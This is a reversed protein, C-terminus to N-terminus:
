AHGPIRTLMQLDYLSVGLTLYFLEAPSRTNTLYIARGILKWNDQQYGRVVAVANGALECTRDGEQTGFPAIGVMGHKEEFFLVCDGPAPHAKIADLITQITQLARNGYHTAPYLTGKKKKDQKSAKHGFGSCTAILEVDNLIQETL